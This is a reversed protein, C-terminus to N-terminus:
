LTAKIRDWEDRARGLLEDVEDTSLDTSDYFDIWREDPIVAVLEDILRPFQILDNDWRNQDQLAIIKIEESSEIYITGHETEILTCGVMAASPEVEGNVKSRGGADGILIDGPMVASAQITTVREM